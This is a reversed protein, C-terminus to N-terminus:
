LHGLQGAEFAAEVEDIESQTTMVFGGKQIFEENVPKSAFLAFHASKDRRNSLQIGVESSATLQSIAIAQGCFLTLSHGAISIDIDGKIAYVWANEDRNLYHEFSSNSDIRGDLITMPLAPSKHSEIGQTSGLVVRVRTGRKEYVPIAQAKLHLSKPASKKIVSPLNVFVQLGHAQAGPRPSEDHVIGSGAKLWYLDGPMLDFDNGLSDRNHFKGVSDEFLVTVASLGAHPHAGFTPETMKYHDVMVLPDMMGFFDRERFAFASFGEGIELVNGRKAPTIHVQPMSNIATEESYKMSRSMTKDGFETHQIGVIYISAISRYFGTSEFNSVM